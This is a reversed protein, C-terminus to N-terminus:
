RQRWTRRSVDWESIQFNNHRKTLVYDIGNKMELLLIIHILNTILPKNIAVKKVLM